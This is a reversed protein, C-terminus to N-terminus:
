EKVPRVSLASICSLPSYRSDVGTISSSNFSLSLAEIFQNQDGTTSTWYFGSTQINRLSQNQGSPRDGSAPFFLNGYTRGPYNRSADTGWPFNSTNLDSFAAKPPVRYGVPSPDYVTKETDSWLNFYESTCWFYWHIGSEFYTNANYAWQPTQIATGLSVPGAKWFDLILEPYVKRDKGSNKIGDSAWVPDKRGWLYFPNNGDSLIIEEFPIQKVLVSPSVAGGSVTQAARVYYQRKAYRERKADCWGLNLPCVKYGSPLTQTARLDEDTVWIHWSWAIVGDALVAIVANGQSIAGSPVEFDIYTEQGSGRLSVARVLGPVDTWLLQASLTKGAHQLAIYPSTIDQDRHDKFTTLINTGSGWGTYSSPNPSGDRVANGYVLPFCYTGPAQVVYANATTRSVTAGTAVNVLSLDFNSEPTRDRLEIHSADNERDLNVQAEMSLMLTEGEVSGAWSTASTAGLWSPPTSSWPGAAREAYQLEFPVAKKEGTVSNTSYSRFNTSASLQSVGGDHAMTITQLRDISYELSGVQANEAITYTIIKGAPWVLSALSAEVTKSDQGDTVVAEIKASSPLTQPLLLLTYEDDVIDYGDKSTDAKLTPSTLTYSGDDQGSPTWGASLASLMLTGQRYVGNVSVRSIALGSKVRFRVGTLAHNFTLPVDIGSVSPNGAYERSSSEDTVLLDTQQTYDANVTFSIQPATGDAATVTLGAAGYPAYGFYRVFGTGPWLFRSTPVWKRSSAAGRGNDHVAETNALLGWGSETTGSTTYQYALLGLSVNDPFTTGAYPEAKTLPEGSVTAIFGPTSRESLSDAERQCATFGGVLAAASLIHLLIKKM